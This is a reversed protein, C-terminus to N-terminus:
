ISIWRLPRSLPILTLAFRVSLRKGNPTDAIAAITPFLIFVRSVANSRLELVKVSFCFLCKALTLLALCLCSCAQLGLWAGVSHGALVVRISPGFTSQVADFISLANQLQSTLNFQSSHLISLPYKAALSPTHGVHSFALIALTGSTDLDYISDLFHTYFDIVGPNGLPPFDSPALIRPLSCVQSSYSSPAPPPAARNQRGGISSSM